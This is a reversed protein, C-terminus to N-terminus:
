YLQLLSRISTNKPVHRSVARDYSIISEHTFNDLINILFSHAILGSLAFTVVTWPISGVIGFTNQMAAVAILAILKPSQHLIHRVLKWRTKEVESWIVQSDEANIFTKMDKRCVGLFNIYHYLEWVIIAINIAFEIGSLRTVSIIGVAATM